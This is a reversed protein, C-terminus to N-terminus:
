FKDLGFYSKEWDGHEMWQEDGRDNMLDDFTDEMGGVSLGGGEDMAFLDEFTSDPKNEPSDVPQTENELAPEEPAPAETAPAEPAPEQPAPPPNTNIQETSNHPLLNEMSLVDDGGDAPAFTALDFSPEQTTVPNQTENNSPALTFEMTTFNSEQHDANIDGSTLDMSDDVPSQEMLPMPAMPAPPAPVHTMVHSEQPAPEEPILPSHEDKIMMDTQNEDSLDMGIDPFPAMQQKISNSDAILQTNVPSSSDIDIVM